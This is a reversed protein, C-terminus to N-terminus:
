FSGSKTKKEIDHYMVDLFQPINVDLAGPTDSAPLIIDALHTVIHKEEKSLFLPTWSEKEANCSSLVNFITPAAISYGLGMTLNKLASRRDM